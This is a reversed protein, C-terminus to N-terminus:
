DTLEYKCRKYDIHRLKYNVVILTEFSFDDIQDHPPILLKNKDVETLLRDFLDVPLNGRYSYTKVEYPVHGITKNEIDILKARERIWGLAPKM